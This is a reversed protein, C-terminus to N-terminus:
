CARSGGRSSSPAATSRPATASCWWRSGRRPAGDPGWCRRWRPGCADPRHGGAAARRPPAGRGRRPGARTAESSVVEHLAEAALPLLDPEDVLVGAGGLTEPVAPRAAPWSRCAARSRRSWPRASARTSPCASTPTPAPTSRPRARRGLVRGAFRVGGSASGRAGPGRARAPLGRLRRRQRGAHPHRGARPPARYLAFARLVDDIRKNPVIRGVSVISPPSGAPRAPAPRDPVDLILPVVRAEGVGAEACSSPTSARTPWWRPPGGACARCSPAPATAPTPSAPTTPRPDAGRAHRQPLLRRAARGLGARGRGGPELGLLAAGPRRRRRPRRRARGPAARTGELEPHVHEAVIEGDAGWGRM